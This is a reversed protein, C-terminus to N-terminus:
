IGHRHTNLKFGRRGAQRTQFSIIQSGTWLMPPFPILILTFLVEVSVETVFELVAADDDSLQDALTPHSSLARQWFQPVKKIIESRESYIPRRKKNYEQEVALVRDSAEDNVKMFSLLMENGFVGLEPFEEM